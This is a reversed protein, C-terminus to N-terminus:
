MMAAAVEVHPSQTRGRSSELISHVNVLSLIHLFIEMRSKRLPPFSRSVFTILPVTAAIPECDIKPKAIHKKIARRV